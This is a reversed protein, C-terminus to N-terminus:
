FIDYFSLVIGVLGAFREVTVTFYQNENMTFVLGESAEVDFINDSAKPSYTEIDFQRCIEDYVRQSEYTYIGLYFEYYWDDYGNRFSCCYDYVADIDQPAEFSPVDWTRHKKWVFESIKDSPYENTGPMIIEEEDIQEVVHALCSNTLRAEESVTRNNPYGKSLYYSEFVYTHIAVSLYLTEFVTDSAKSKDILEANVIMRLYGNKSASYEATVNYGQNRLNQCSAEISSPMFSSCTIYDNIVKRADDLDKQVRDDIWWKKQLNFLPNKKEVIMYSKSGLELYDSEEDYNVDIYSVIDGYEENFVKYTETNKVEVANEEKSYKYVYYDEAWTSYSFGSSEGDWMFNDEDPNTVTQDSSGYGFEFQKVDKARNITETVVSDAEEASVDFMLGDDTGGSGNMFFLNCSTLLLGFLSLFLLGKKNM